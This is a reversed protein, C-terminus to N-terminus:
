SSFTAKLVCESQQVHRIDEIEPRSDYYKKDLKENLISYDPILKVNSLDEDCSAM